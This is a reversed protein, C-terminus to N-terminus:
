GDHGGMELVLRGQHYVEVRERKNKALRGSARAKACDLTAASDQLRRDGRIYWLLFHRETQKIKRM